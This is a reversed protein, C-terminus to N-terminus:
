LDTKDQIEASYLAFFDRGLAASIRMLLGTNIHEQSFIYYVNPRECHIKRALWAPTREQRLMEAKIENGIHIM